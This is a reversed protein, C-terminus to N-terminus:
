LLASGITHFYDLIKLLFLEFLMSVPISDNMRSGVYKHM